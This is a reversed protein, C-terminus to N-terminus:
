ELSYAMFAGTGNSAKLLREISAQMGASRAPDHYHVSNGDSKYILLSHFADGEGPYLVKTRISTQILKGESLLTNLRHKTLAGYTVECGARIALFMEKHALPLPESLKDNDKPHEYKAVDMSSGQADFEALAQRLLEPKFLPWKAYMTTAIGYESALKAITPNWINKFTTGYDPAVIKILKEESVHVGRFALVSRLVALSCAYRSAQPFYPPM